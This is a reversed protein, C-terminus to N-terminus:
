PTLYGLQIMWQGIPRLRAPFHLAQYRPIVVDFSVGSKSANSKTTLPGIIPLFEIFSGPGGHNLILPIAKPDGAKKHIFHVTVGEITTTFQPYRKSTLKQARLHAKPVELLSQQSHYVSKNLAAQEVEWNFSTTWEQQLSKLVGRDIGLTEGVGSYPDHDPLKTQRILSLM